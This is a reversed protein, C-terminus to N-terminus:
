KNKRKNKLASPTNQQLQRKIMVYNKIKSSNLAYTKPLNTAYKIVNNVMNKGFKGYLKQAENRLLKKKLTNEQNLKMDKVMAKKIDNAVMKRIVGNRTTVNLSNNKEAKNLERKVDRINKDLDMVKGYKTMWKKGYMKVLDNRIGTDNLRRKQNTINRSRRMKLAYEMENALSNPSNPKDQLKDCLMKVTDKDDITIGKSLAMAILQDKKMTRCLKGDVKLNSTGKEIADLASCIVNKTNKQRVGVVGLKKAVDLLVPKTLRDCKRGGIKMTGDKDYSISVNKPTAKKKSVGRKKPIKFCCESGQPNKRVEFGDKCPPRRPKPCTSAKVSKMMPLKPLNVNRNVLGMTYGLVHLLKVMDVGVKYANELDDPDSEGQVQVVGSGLKGSKTSLVFNHDKYTMYLFPTLESEYSISQAKVPNQQSIRTLDFNVNTNFFGAINNYEIENYLFGQKQTYTDILYKRLAEPQKKLNSSGLFGGSFRIKGNSYIVFTFNKRETGDMTYGSLQVSFFEKNLDGKLGFNSTHIAGTQFRGYYGKIENLDLTLGPAIQAHGKPKQKLIYQLDVRKEDKSFKKNVLVNYMGPHFKGIKLGGKKSPTTQISVNSNKVFQRPDM